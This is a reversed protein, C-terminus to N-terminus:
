LSVGGIRPRYKNEEHRTEKERQNGVETAQRSGESGNNCVDCPKSAEETLPRPEVTSFSQMSYEGVTRRSEDGQRRKSGGTEHKSVSEWVVHVSPRSPNRV